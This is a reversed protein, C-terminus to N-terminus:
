DLLVETYVINKTVTTADNKFLVKVRQSSTCRSLAVYLQGHAFVDTRLDLGITDVSQGQSKNITLVFALRVPFQRRKMEFALQDPSPIISIRPIFATKGAHEGGILRIELVHQSMRTLIGRSGNCLGQAPDLNRLVMIPCGVKLALKSLPLGSARISNLYEISYEFNSDVGQEKVVSDASHFITQEGLFKHLLNQNLDDV